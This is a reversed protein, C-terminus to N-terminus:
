VWTGLYAHGVMVLGDEVGSRPSDPIYISRIRSGDLEGWFHPEM